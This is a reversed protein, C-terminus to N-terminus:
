ELPNAGHGAGGVSVEVFVVHADAFVVDFPEAVRRRIDVRMATFRKHQHEAAVRDLMRIKGVDNVVDRQQVAEAHFQYQHMARARLDFAAAFQAADRRFKVVIQADGIGVREFAHFVRGATQTRM